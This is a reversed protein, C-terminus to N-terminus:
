IEIDLNTLWNTAATTAKHLHKMGGRISRIPCEEVIHNATQTEHGCDCQPTDRLGWKHLMNGTKGHGTRLGPVRETPQEILNFKDPNNLRWEETWKSNLNYNILKQALKWPPKTGAELSTTHSSNLWVPACYEAVLYTLALASIRITNADSGWTTQALKNIINNRIKIKAAVKTLHERYTLTRDLTIGLYTPNPNNRIQQENFVVKIEQRAMKNNLHFLTVETKTPNPTLRWNNCYKNLESLDETLYKECLEYTDNDPKGPKLIALVKTKFQKPFKGSCLMNTFFVALWQRTKLGCHKLFEPHVEDFGAAKGTKIAQIATQIEHETFDNAFNTRM